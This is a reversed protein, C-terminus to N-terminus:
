QIVLPYQFMIITSVTPLTSCATYHKTVWKYVVGLIVMSPHYVDDRFPLGITPNVVNNLYTGNWIEASPKADHKGATRQQACIGHKECPLQMGTQGSAMKAVSLCQLTALWSWLCRGWTPSELLGTLAVFSYCCMFVWLNYSKLPFKLIWNISTGYWKELWIKHPYERVYGQFIPWHHNSDDRWSNFSRSSPCRPLASHTHYM